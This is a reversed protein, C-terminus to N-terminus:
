TLLNIRSKIQAKCTKNLVTMQRFDTWQFLSRYIDTAGMESKPETNIEATTAQRE